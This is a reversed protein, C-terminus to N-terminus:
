RSPVVRADLTETLGSPPLLVKLLLPLQVLHSLEESLARVKEISRARDHSASLELVAAVIGSVDGAPVIIGVGSLFDHLETGADAMVIVNRGSALMGGLKGPVCLDAINPDQPLVHADALNLLECLLEEPQVPLFLVNPMNCDVLQAKAPGDGAIVFTIDSRKTLQGAAEM